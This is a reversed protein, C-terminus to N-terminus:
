KPEGIKKELGEGRHDIANMYHGLAMVIGQLSQQGVKLDDMYGRIATLEGKVGRMDDRILRLQELILNDVNEAM